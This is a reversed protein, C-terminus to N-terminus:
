CAKVKGLRPMFMRITLSRMVVYGVIPLRRRRESFLIEKELPPNLCVMGNGQRLGAVIRGNESAVECM